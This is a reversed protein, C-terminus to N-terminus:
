KWFLGEFAGTQAAYGTRNLYNNDKYLLDLKSGNGLIQTLLTDPVILSITKNSM